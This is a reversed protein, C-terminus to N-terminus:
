QIGDRNRRHKLMDEGPKLAAVDERRIEFEFVAESIVVTKAGM